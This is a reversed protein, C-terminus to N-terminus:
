NITSPCVHDTLEIKTEKIAKFGGQVDILNHIGEKLISAAIVDAYGGACHFIFPNTKRYRDLYDNLLDLPTNQASAIHETIFENEKHVDFVLVKEKALKELNRCHRWRDYRIRKRINEM